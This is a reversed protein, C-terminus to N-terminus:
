TVERYNTITVAASTRTRGADGCLALRSRDVIDMNVEPQQLIM